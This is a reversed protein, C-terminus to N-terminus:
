RVLEPSHLGHDTQCHQLLRQMQWPCARMRSFPLFRMGSEDWGNGDKSRRGEGRRAQCGAGGRGRGRRRVAAESEKGKSGSM